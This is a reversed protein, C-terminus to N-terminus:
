ADRMPTHVAQSFFPSASSAAALQDATALLSPHLAKMKAETLRATPGAITIVGLAAQGKLQVPAGIASLGAMFTDITLSFGQARATALDALLATLSRVANPGYDTALGLGQESVLALAQDDSMTMLWALGSASCSLKADSGMDPDYRLGQRSGQAKAVWTLRKGDVVSLRVLEGSAEALSDLLPQAADVIGASSLYSLGMAILKTTLVYTGRGQRQRVYGLRALDTLLRHVASRPITLTDAIAALELGEGTKVLLELIGLTRELVGNMRRM